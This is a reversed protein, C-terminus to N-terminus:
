LNEHSKKESIESEFYLDIRFKVQFRLDNLQTILTSVDSYQKTYRTVNKRKLDELEWLCENVTKIARKYFNLGLEDLVTAQVKYQELELVVDLGKELKIELISMRDVFDGVSMNGVIKVM